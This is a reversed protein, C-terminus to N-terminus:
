INRLTLYKGNPLLNNPIELGATRLKFRECRTHRENCCYMNKFLEKSADLNFIKSVAITAGFAGCTGTPHFGRAYHSAPNLAKGLRVMIEYGLVVAETFREGNCGELEAAAGVRARRRGVGACRAEQNTGASEQFERKDTGCTM